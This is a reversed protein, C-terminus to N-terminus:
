RKSERYWREAGPHLKLPGTNIAERTNLRAAVPHQRAMTMKGEFMAETLAYATADSMLDANVVLYNPIGITDIAPTGYTSEPVTHMVYPQHYTQRLQTAYDGIGVLRIPMREKLTQVAGVPLGGSFFFADIRGERLANASEDLGLKVATLDAPDAPDLDACGLVRVATGLTGSGDAGISVRHAKLDTLAHIDSDARVVLHLYDDYVRALAVVPAGGRVADDATDAQAFGVEAEGASVLQLNKASAPTILVSPHLRPVREKVVAALAVGYQYYVGTSSGTAIRLPGEPVDPESADCGGAAGAVVLVLTGVLSRVRNV